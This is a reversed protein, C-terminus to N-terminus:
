KKNNKIKNQNYAVASQLLTKLSNQNITDNEYIDISRWKKGDLGNNFLKDSDLVNAGESFTIKVKNKLINMICLIGNHSWVPTGMWKWEEIVSPEAEHIIKRIKAFMTGRWDNCNTILKDIQEEANM